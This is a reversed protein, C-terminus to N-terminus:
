ETAVKLIIDLKETIEPDIWYLPVFDALIHFNTKRMVNTMTLTKFFEEFIPELVDDSAKTNAWWIDQRNRLAIAPYRDQVLTQMIQPAHEGWTQAYAQLTEPLFLYNEIERKRWAMFRLAERAQTKSKQRDFLAVGRIDPYAEQLGSFHNQAKKEQNSVYYVFAQSLIDKVPHNLKNAFAQLISKDTTGEVYLVWGTREAQFYDDFRIEALAKKIQTTNKNGRTDIRHPKGVFAVMIDQEGAENMIVESHTAIILQSGMRRTITTLLEYVERQRIIELHADPEDLLLVTAPNDYLFALLLLMQLMGRGGSSIDLEIGNSEQYSMRIEGRGALYVPPLIKIHFLTDMHDVLAKWHTKQEYVNYCLNRLVEATRGEGILVALRGREIKPEVSALGSMPTLFAIRPTQKPISPKARCMISEGNMYLFQYGQEDGADDSVVIEITHHTNNDTLSQRNRWLLRTEPVPTAIIHYRNLTLTDDTKPNTKIFEAWEQATVWWLMLAQLTTTKGSNNAGIFVVTQGLEITVDEFQKFNKIRLQTLM